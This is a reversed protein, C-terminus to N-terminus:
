VITGRYVQQNLMKVKNTIIFPQIVEDIEEKTLKYDNWEIIKTKARYGRIFEQKNQM